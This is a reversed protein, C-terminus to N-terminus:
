GHVVEAVRKLDDHIAGLDDFRHERELVVLDPSAHQLTLELLALVEDPVAHDHGDVYGHDGELAYGGAVHVERIREPPLSTVFAAADIGQNRQDCYLNHLDLLVECEAARVVQLYFDLPDLTSAHHLFYTPVHELLLPTGPTLQDRFAALNDAAITVADVTAIPPLNLELDLDGARAATLHESVFMPEFGELFPRLREHPHNDLYDASALSHEVFHFSYPLALEDLRRKLLAEAGAYAYGSPVVEIAQLLGDAAAEVLLPRLPDRWTMGVRTGERPVPTSRSSPM